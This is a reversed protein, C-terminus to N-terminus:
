HHKKNTQYFRTNNNAIDAGLDRIHGLLHGKANNSRLSGLHCGLGLYIVSALKIGLEQVPIGRLLVFGRGALLEKLIENILTHITPLPFDDKTIQELPKGLSLFHHAAKNLEAIQNESWEIKWSQDNQMETGTWISPGSIQKPFDHPTKIQKNTNNLM